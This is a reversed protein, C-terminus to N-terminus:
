QKTPYLTRRLAEPSAQEWDSAYRMLHRLNRKRLQFSLPKAFCRMDSIDILGLEGDPTRVVNGPHLSRFYIGAEHLRTVFVALDSLLREQQEKSAAGLLKRLTDGPLPVYKVLTRAPKDLRFVGTVRPCPIGRRALEEANDAFRQAPPWFLTKSLWRKRRFIKLFTGDDLLLVKEGHGDREIVEATLRWQEFIERPLTEM